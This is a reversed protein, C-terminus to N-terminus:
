KEQNLEKELFEIYLKRDPMATYVVPRQTSLGSRELVLNERILLDLNAIDEDKYTDDDLMFNLRRPSGNLDISVVFCFLGGGLKTKKLIDLLNKKEEYTFNEKVYKFWIERVDKLIKFRVSDYYNSISQYNGGASAGKHFNTKDGIWKPDINEIIYKTRVREDRIEIKAFKVNKHTFYTTDEKAVQAYSVCSVAIALLCIILKKMAM